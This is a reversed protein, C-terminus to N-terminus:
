EASVQGGPTKLAGRDNVPNQRCNASFRTIGLRRQPLM